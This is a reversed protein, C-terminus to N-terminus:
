IWWSEELNVGSVVLSMQEVSGYSLDHHHLKDSLFKLHTESAYAAIERTVIDLWIYQSVREWSQKKRGCSKDAEAHKEDM